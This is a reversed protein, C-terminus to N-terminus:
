QKGDQPFAILKDWVSFQKSSWGLCKSITVPQAEDKILVICQEVMGNRQVELRRVYRGLETGNLQAERPSILAHCSPVSVSHVASLHRLQTFLRFFMWKSLTFWYSPSELSTRQTDGNHFCIKASQLQKM